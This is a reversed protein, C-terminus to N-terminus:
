RNILEIDLIGNSSLLYFCVMGLFGGTFFSSLWSFRQSRPIVKWSIWVFILLGYLIVFVSPILTSPLFHFYNVSNELIESDFPYGEIYSIIQNVIFGIPERVWFCALLILFWQWRNLTTAKQFKYQNIVILFVGIIGISITLWSGGFGVFQNWFFNIKQKHSVGCDLSYGELSLTPSYNALHFIIYGGINWVLTGLLTFIFICITLKIFLRRNFPFSNSM